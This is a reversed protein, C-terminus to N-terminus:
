KAPLLHLPQWLAAGTTAQAQNTNTHICVRGTNEGARPGSRPWVNRLGAVSNRTASGACSDAGCSCSTTGQQPRSTGGATLHPSPPVAFATRARQPSRRVVFKLKRLRPASLSVPRPSIAFVRLSIACSCACNCRSNIRTARFSARMSLDSYCKKRATRPLPPISM